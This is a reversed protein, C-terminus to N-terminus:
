FRYEAGFSVGQMWIGSSSGPFVPHSQSTTPTPPVQSLVPDIQESARWLNSWYLFTYGAFVRLHPTLQRGVNLGVQPVVSFADSSYRGINSGQALFGGSSTSSGFPTVLQTNGDITAVRHTNGLAVQSTWSLFWRGRWREGALGLQGGDFSNTTRFSDLAFLRSGPPAVGPPPAPETALLSEAVSLTDHAGLHRYGILFDVRGAESRSLLQRYNVEAGNINTTSHVLIQGALLPTLTGPILNPDQFAVLEANQTGNANTFPRFLGPSGGSAAGFTTSSQGLFFGGAEIGRTQEPDLWFGGRLRLGPRWSDGLNGGGFLVATSPNALTGAGPLPTGTPASTVLAPVHQGQTQWYLVESAIWYRGRPAALPVWMVPADPPATTWEPLPAPVLAAPPAQPVTMEPAITDRPAPAEEPATAAPAPIIAPAAPRAQGLFARPIEPPVTPPLFWGVAERREPVDPEHPVIPGLTARETSQGSVPGAALFACFLLLALRHRMNFRTPVPLLAKPLNYIRRSRM